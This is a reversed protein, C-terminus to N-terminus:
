WRSRVGKLLNYVHSKGHGEALTGVMSLSIIATRDADNKNRTNVPVGVDYLLYRVAPIDLGFVAM